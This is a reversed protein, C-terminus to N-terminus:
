KTVVLFGNQVMVTWFFAMKDVKKKAFDYIFYM